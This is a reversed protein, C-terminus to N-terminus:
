VPHCACALPAPLPLLHGSRMVGVDIAFCLQLTNLFDGIIAQDASGSIRGRLTTACCALSGVDAKASRIDVSQRTSSGSSNSWSGAVSSASPPVRAHAENPLQQTSLRLASQLWDICTMATKPDNVGPSLARAAVEVLQDVLFLANQASTCHSGFAFMFRLKEQQGDNLEPGSVLLLPEDQSVFDGPVLCMKIVAHHDTAFRFLGEDDVTQLYGDTSSPIRQALEEFHDPLQLRPDTEQSEPQREALMEPFLEPICENLERGVKAVVNSLRISEPIHHIFYILAGVSVITLLIATFVSMHCLLELSTRVIIELVM